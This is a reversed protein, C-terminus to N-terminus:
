PTRWATIGSDRDFTYFKDAQVTQWPSWNVRPWQVRVKVEKAEGLGFHMWGLNGSAHGGGVTLEERIVKGGLDVEVWAGVADRNGASQKLRLQLWHGLSQPKDTTGAGLNRWLQAKDWRNVVAIDLLGDGNLDALMGGRGRLFSAMGAQQGVESFRGDPQQLLLNNPDLTAFDPMTSVNGKVVFLDAMGDNNVDGFQAHWATSPHIDGGVYPRHATIGRKYAQDIFAPRSADTELKQFKNDAMSTLFVEPYGDGDVDHSAIGMGWIQLRKWGDAASYQTAPQRPAVKWLQEQGDKYYERDNSVRLSAEGSRNWDTFLMSLACYGPKLLEPAAFKKGSADPRLLVGPTCTGWPFDPKSRDYYTGFALTPWNQDKEWTASFATHWENSDPINWRANAREFKCSGLGRFVEVEGVRLVVLDANGDGDIDLPYAGTANTLELGSREEQLKITGGRASRNRYFKAKNVGGTVYIEPLGDNDCDFTALGGGVMFEDQGEFRSQLGATDTEEVFRPIVPIPASQANAAGIGHYALVSALLLPTNKLM